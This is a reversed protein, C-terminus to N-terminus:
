KPNSTTPAVSPKKQEKWKKIAEEGYPSNLFEEIASALAIGTFIGPGGGEGEGRARVWDEGYESYAPWVVLYVFGSGTQSYSQVHYPGSNKVLSSRRM